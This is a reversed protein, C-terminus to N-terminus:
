GQKLFYMVQAFSGKKEIFQTLFEWWRAYLVAQLGSFQGYIGNKDGGWM